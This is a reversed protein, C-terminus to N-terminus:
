VAVPLEASRVLTAGTAEKMAMERRHLMLERLADLVMETAEEETDGESIAGPYEAIRSVFGGEEAPQLLITWTPTM